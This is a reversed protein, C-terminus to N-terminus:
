SHSHRLAQFPWEAASNVRNQCFPASVHPEPNGWTVLSLVFHFLRLIHWPLKLSFKKILLMTLCQFLKGPCQHLWWGQHYEFFTHIHCPKTTSKAPNLNPNSLRLPIKRVQIIRHNSSEEHGAKWAPKCRSIFCGRLPLSEQSTTDTSCLAECWTCLFSM